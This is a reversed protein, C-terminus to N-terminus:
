PTARFSNSSQFPQFQALSGCDLVKTGTTSSDLTVTHVATASVTNNTALYNNNGSAVLIITPTQGSPTVSGSPVDYSFHNGIVSNNGGEIHVLGFLDDRGNNYPKLPDFKETERFFHNAGVLNETCVGEFHVMGPYYGHLRNASISSRTCNKFHVMSQGRPFINNGTVLLGWHNEAYVSFGVHGAGILNDTVKTAQGSGVLKVCTGNEALFNGSVSLADADKVVLGHELYVMGMREVRCSDNASDFLIGTKGNVYSNQNSGFSVGDLCFNEFVVASLRPDGARYVRFAETNGDTNEVRVRSGGPNVEHWGSTSSNYRISLSTFGHGSGRITLFSIDVNVRTKLSYDGPPIYIVAGPKSAQSTQQSKIDAIISNIILGIDNYPTATPNGPVSWATVDYVTTM